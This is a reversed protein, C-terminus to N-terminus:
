RVSFAVCAMGSWSMINLAGVCHKSSRCSSHPRFEGAVEFIGEHEDCRFWEAILGHDLKCVMDRTIERNQFRTDSATKNMKSTIALRLNSRKLVPYAAIDLWHDALVSHMHHTFLPHRGLICRSYRHSTKLPLRAAIEPVDEAVSAGCVLVSGSPDAYHYIEKDFVSFGKIVFPNVTIASVTPTSGV